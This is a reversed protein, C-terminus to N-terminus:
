NDVRGGRYVHMTDILVVFNSLDMDFGKEGVATFLIKEEWRLLVDKTIKPYIVIFHHM